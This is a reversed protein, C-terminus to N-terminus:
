VRLDVWRSVIQVSYTAGGGAGTLTRGNCGHYGDAPILQPRALSIAAGASLGIATAAVMGIAADSHSAVGCQQYVGGGTPLGIWIQPLDVNAGATMGYIYASCNMLYRMRGQPVLLGPGTITDWTPAAACSYGTLLQVDTVANGILLLDRLDMGLVIEPSIEQPVDGQSQIGLLDLLGTPRNQIRM